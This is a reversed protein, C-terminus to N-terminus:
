APITTAKLVSSRDSEDSYATLGADLMNYLNGVALADSLQVISHNYLGGLLSGIPNKYEINIPINEGVSGGVGAIISAGGYAYINTVSSDPVATIPDGTIAGVIATFASRLLNGLGAGNYTYVHTINSPILADLWLSLHGGLSHGTVTFTQNSSIKGLGKDNSLYSQMMETTWFKGPAYYKGLERLREIEDTSYTVSAGAPTILQKYFRYMDIIQSGAAGLTAIGWADTFLDQLGATGRNAFVYEGTKTNKFLTASFGSDGYLTDSSQSVVEWGDTIFQNFQSETFGADIFAQKNLTNNVAILKEAYAALSLISYNNYQQITTM